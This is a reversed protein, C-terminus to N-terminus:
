RKRLYKRLRKRTKRSAPDNNSDWSNSLRPPTPDNTHNSPVISSRRSTNGASNNLLRFTNKKPINKRTATKQQALTRRNTNSIVKPKSGIVRTVIDGFSVRSIPKATTPKSAAKIVEGRNHNGGEIVLGNM